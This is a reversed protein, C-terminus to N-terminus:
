WRPSTTGPRRRLRHRRPELDAVPVWGSTICEGDDNELYCLAKGAFVAAVSAPLGLPRIIVKDDPYFGGTDSIMAAVALQLSAKSM